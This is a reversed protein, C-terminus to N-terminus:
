RLRGSAAGKGALLGGALWSRPLIDMGYHQAAPIVELEITRELLNYVAQETVFGLM